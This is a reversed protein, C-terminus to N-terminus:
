FNTIANLGVFLLVLDPRLIVVLCGKSIFISFKEWNFLMDIYEFFFKIILDVCFNITETIKNYYDIGVSFAVVIANLIDLLYYSFINISATVFFITFIADFLIGKKKLPNNPLICKFFM